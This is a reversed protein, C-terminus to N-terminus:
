VSSKRGFTKQDEFFIAVEEGGLFFILTELFM